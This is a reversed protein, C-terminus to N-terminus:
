DQSPLRCNESVSYVPGPEPKLNPHAQYLMQLWYPQGSAQKSNVKAIVQHADDGTCDIVTLMEKEGPRWVATFIALSPCKPCNGLYVRTSSPM